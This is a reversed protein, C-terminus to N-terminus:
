FYRVFHSYYNVFGLFVQLEKVNTPSNWQLIVETKKPDPKFIGSSIILGLFLLETLGFGYKTPKEFLFDFWFQVFDM